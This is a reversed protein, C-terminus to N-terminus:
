RKLPFLKLNDFYENLSIDQFERLIKFCHSILIIFFFIFLQFLLSRLDLNIACARKECVTFKFDFTYFHVWFAVSNIAFVTCGRTM